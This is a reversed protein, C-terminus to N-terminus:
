SGAVRITGACRCASSARRCTSPPGSATPRPTSSAARSAAWRARSRGWPRPRSSTGACSWPPTAPTTSAGTTTACARSRSTACPTPTGSSRGGTPTAPSSRRSCWARLARALPRRAGHGAGGARGDREAAFEAPDLTLRQMRDAEIALAREWRDSALEFWYATHDYSTFANNVGGLQTTIRDVAGKPYRASGKFMMHELFHSVGAEHERENRAGVRYWTMVAVVPDSHREALLVRLGNDLRHEHITAGGKLATGGEVRAERARRAATRLPAPLNSM